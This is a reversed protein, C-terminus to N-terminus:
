FISAAIDSISGTVPQLLLWCCIAAGSIPLVAISIDNSFVGQTDLYTTLLLLQCALLTTKSAPRIGAFEAMILYELLALHIIIQIAVTFSIGGFGFVILGFLGASIGSIFRKSYFSGSM